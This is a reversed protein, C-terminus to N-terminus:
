ADIAARLPRLFGAALQAAEQADSAGAIAAVLASGVVVGDAEAAMARATAADRIGFGAVVPVRTQGRIAHLRDSAAGTDLRDAGTVGAFPIAPGAGLAELVRAGALIM